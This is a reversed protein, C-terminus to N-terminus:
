DEKIEGSANEKQSAKETAVDYKLDRTTSVALGLQAGYYTSMIMSPGFPVTFNWKDTAILFDSAIFLVAGLCGCFAARTGEAEYRATARWGVSFILAIYMAVLVTLVYSNIGPQIFLFVDLAALIFINRTRSTKSTNADDELGIFYFVHGIAFALLGPIFLTERWVLCADGLASAALAFLFYRARSDDPILDDKTPFGPTKKASSIIYFALSAIPLIKFFVAGLTESPNGWIPMYLIYYLLWTSFFPVLRIKQEKSFTTMFFEQIDM